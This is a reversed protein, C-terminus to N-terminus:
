IDRGGLYHIDLNAASGDNIFRIRRLDEILVLMPALGAVLSMGSSTTPDTSDDMTYKISSSGPDAQIEAHTAKPPITLNDATKVAGTATIQEYSLHM